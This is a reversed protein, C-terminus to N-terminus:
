NERSIMASRLMKYQLKRLKVFSLYTSYKSYTCPQRRSQGKVGRHNCISLHKFYKNAWKTKRPPIRISIIITCIIYCFGFLFRQILSVRYILPPPPRRKNIESVSKVRGLSPQLLNPSKCHVWGLYSGWLRSEEMKTWSQCPNLIASGKNLM